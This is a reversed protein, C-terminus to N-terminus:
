RTLRPPRLASHAFEFPSSAGVLLPLYNSYLTCSLIVLLFSIALVFSLFIVATEREILRRGDRRRSSESKLGAAPM